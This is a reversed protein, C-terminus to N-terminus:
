GIMVPASIGEEDEEDAAAAVLDNWRTMDPGMNDELTGAGPGVEVNDERRV